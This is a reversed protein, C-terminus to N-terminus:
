RSDDEPRRSASLLRAPPTGVVGMGIRPLASEGETPICVGANLLPLGAGVSGCGNSAVMSASLRSTFGRPTIESRFQMTRATSSAETSAVM